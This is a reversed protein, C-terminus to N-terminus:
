SKKSVNQVEELTFGENQLKDIEQQLKAKHLQFLKFLQNKIPEIFQAIIEEHEDDYIYMSDSFVIDENTETLEVTIDEVLCNKTYCTKCAFRVPCTDCNGDSQFKIYATNSPTRLFDELGSEDILLFTIM